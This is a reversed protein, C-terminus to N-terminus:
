KPGHTEEEIRRKLADLRTDWEMELKQIFAKAGQLTTLDLDVWVERGQPRLYIINAEALVQLHRRAGQRTLNLGQTVAGVQQHPNQVLRQVIELRTPEGLARFVEVANM